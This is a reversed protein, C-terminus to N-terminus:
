VRQFTPMPLLPTSTLSQFKQKNLSQLIGSSDCAKAGSGGMKEQSLCLCCKQMQGVVKHSCGIHATLSTSRLFSWAGIGAAISGAGAPGSQLKWFGTPTSQLEGSGRQMQSATSRPARPETDGEMAGVLDMLCLWVEWWCLTLLSCWGEGAPAWSDPM